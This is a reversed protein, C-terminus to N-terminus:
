GFADLEALVPDSVALPGGFLMGSTVGAAVASLYSVVTPPLPGTPPVLLMPGGERGLLPGGALADPFNTGTAAGLVSPAGFFTQAVAASTDYLDTGYVATAGPDAGAAALPGGIAYRTDDPHAALYAATAPSQVPGDTLLIAGHLKIAAPVASLADAFNLGTAEFITSPNGLQEAVLVATQFEDAGALRVTTYGLGQLESDINPSLALDGGLLYVTGGPALVREIETEVAPDLTASQAASETILVPGDVAAALPGGALADSFFDDRALVVAKASLPNPFSAQSVAIATGIATAGAVRSFVGVPSGYSFTAPSPVTAVPGAAGVAVSGSGPPVVVVDATSSRSLIQTATGGFAITADELGLGHVVVESGAPAQAPSVSLAVTCAVGSAEVSGLGSALDYGPGAAFQGGNTGSFDNDGSVIDHIAGDYGGSAALAYLAPAADGSLPQGCESGRDAWIASALPAAISTGVFAGWSGGTFFVVPVGADASIDPVERCNSGHPPCSASSPESLGAQWVPRPEVSSTGGGGAGDGPGCGGDTVGMCGNWVVENGDLNRSTGGVSTVWPNSTPYDVALATNDTTALCDESGSDGAASFVAQGQSAAQEFLVDMSAISGAGSTPNLPECLGWSDSIYEASDDHVIRAMTDYSGQDTNPGEYSTISAAGPAQAALQEIDLDAEATGGTDPTGGGDVRVVDVPVQLGFCAEFNGVDAASSPALEYVALREGAADFGAGTLVSVGYAAGLSATTYGSVQNALSAAPACTGPQVQAGPAAHFGQGLPVQEALPVAAPLDTLGLVGTVQHALSVPVEPTQPAAYVTAGQPTQYNAVDVGFAAHLQAATGTADIAFTSRGTVTLGAGRLWGETAAVTTPSPGFEQGFVGPPLWQHFRSSAPDYLSALLADIGQPDSPSLVVEVDLIRGAPVPGIDITGAPLPAPRLTTPRTLPTGTAAAPASVLVTAAALALALLAVPGRPRTRAGAAGRGIMEHCVVPRTHGSRTM